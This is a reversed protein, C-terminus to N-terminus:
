SLREYAQQIETFKTHALESFEEGLHAVRDPHYKKALERYASKIEDASAGPPVGLTDYDSKGATSGASSVKPGTRQWDKEEVGITRGVYELVKLEEPHMTADAMAVDFLCEMLLLRSAYDSRTLFDKCLEDLPVEKNLFESILTGVVDLSEGRYGLREFFGRITKVEEPRVEGDAKLMTSLIGVLTAVFYFEQQQQKARPDSSSFGGQGQGGKPSAGSSQAWRAAEWCSVL